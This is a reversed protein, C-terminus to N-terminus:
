EYAGHLAFGRLQSALPLGPFCVVGERPGVALGPPRGGSDRCYVDNTGCCHCPSTLPHWSRWSFARRLKQFICIFGFSLRQRLASRGLYFCM